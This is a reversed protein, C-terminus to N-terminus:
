IAQTESFAEAQYPAETEHQKEPSSLSCYYYSLIRTVAKQTTLFSSNIVGKGQLCMEMWNWLARNEEFNTVSASWWTWCSNPHPSAVENELFCSKFIMWYWDKRKEDSQTAIKRRKGQKKRWGIQLRWETINFRLNMWKEEQMQVKRKESTKKELRETKEKRVWKGKVKFEQCDQKGLSVCISFEAWM